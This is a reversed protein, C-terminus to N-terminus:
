LHCLDRIEMSITPGPCKGFFQAQSVSAQCPTWPQMRNSTLSGVDESIYQDDNGRMSHLAYVAVHVRCLGLDGAM